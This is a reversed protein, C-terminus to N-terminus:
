ALADALILRGEADTNGIEVTIGKRSTLVDGPRFAPASVSNEVAAIVLRLTIPLTHARIMYALALATAAGGMDKKMLAMSNDPKLNLGGTDFTVGKGVLTVTPADPSAAPWRVDILRPAVSSAAGVAYVMPFNQTLLQEGRLVRLTGGTREALARAQDELTQPTALNAPTNILDRGLAIAEARAELSAADIGDPVVLAVELPSKPKFATFRYAGLLWALTAHETDLEPAHLAYIGKTLAQPLAGVQFALRVSDSAHTPAAGLGFLVAEIAGTSSPVVVLKGSAATFSNADAFARASASLAPPMDRWRTESCAYIPIANLSSAVLVNM